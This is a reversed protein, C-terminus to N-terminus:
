RVKRSSGQSPGARSVPTDSELFAWTGRHETCTCTCTCTDDDRQLATKGPRNTAGNRGGGGETM